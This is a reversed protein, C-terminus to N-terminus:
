PKRERRDQKDESGSRRDDRREEKQAPAPESKGSDSGSKSVVSPSPAPTQDSGSVASQSPESDNSGRHRRGFPRQQQEGAEGSGEAPDSYYRVWWPYEYYYYWRDYSTRHPSGYGHVVTYTPSEHCSGCDDAYTVAAANEEYTSRQEDSFRPHKLLTYCGALSLFIAAVACTALLRTFFRNKM